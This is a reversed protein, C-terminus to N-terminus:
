GPRRNRPFGAGFPDGFTDFRFTQRGEDVLQQANALIQNDFSPPLAAAAGQTRAAALAIYQFPGSTQGM